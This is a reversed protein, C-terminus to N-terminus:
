LTGPWPANDLLRVGGLRAAIIARAPRDPSVDLLTAADRVVAYDISAGAALLVRAMAAEAEVAVDHAQAARLAGSIVVARAREEPPLFRNRSSMALGDHERITPGPIIRIPSGQHAVMATVVQLQQWDKEGFVAATPHVMEFLRAVVQCVGDFHGPRHADELGPTFAVDPLPVRSEATGAPYVEDVSPAFVATAGAAQCLTVDAELTRPYRELDKPDNFQTPNVFISVVVHPWSHQRAWQAGLRILSAHGEHLAGMTPIFIRAGDGLAASLQDHRPILHM